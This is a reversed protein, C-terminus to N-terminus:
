VYIYIYVFSMFFCRIELRKFICPSTGAPKRPNQPREWCRAPGWHDWAANRHTEPVKPGSWIQQGSMQHSEHVAVTLGLPHPHTPLMFATALGNRVIRIIEFYESITPVPKCLHFSGRNVLWKKPSTWREDGHKPPSRGTKQPELGMCIGNSEWQFSMMETKSTTVKEVRPPVLPLQPM